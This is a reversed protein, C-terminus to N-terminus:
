AALMASLAMDRRQAKTTRGDWGHACLAHGPPMECCPCRDRVVRLEDLQREIAARDIMPVAPTDRPATGAYQASPLTAAGSAVVILTRRNDETTRVVQGRFVAQSLLTDVRGMTLHLAAAIQRNSPCPQGAHREIFDILLAIQAARSADAESGSLGATTGGRPLFGTRIETVMDVGCTTARSRSGRVVTTVLGRNRLAWMVAWVRRPTVGHRKALDAMAITAVGDVAIERLIALIEGERPPLTVAPM